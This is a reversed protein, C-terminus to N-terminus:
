QAFLHRSPYRTLGAHWLRCVKAIDCAQIRANRAVLDFSHVQWRGYVFYM